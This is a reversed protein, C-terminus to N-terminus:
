PNATQFTTSASLILARAVQAVRTQYYNIEFEYTKKMAIARLEVQTRNNGATDGDIVIPTNMLGFNETDRMYQFFLDLFDIGENNQLGFVTVRVKEMALQYHDRNQDLRRIPQLARTDYIKVAAYPPVINPPVLDAPYLILSPNSFGDYYPSKYGNMQLWFPMSNSVVARTPDVTYSDLLQSAMAPQISHGFYHWVGVADYFGNQQSFAYRFDEHQAVYLTNGPSGSFYAVPEKTTLLVSALGLTEDENQLMEQSFHMSGNVRIKTTPLWFIYSDVPLVVRTYRQFEVEQDLDLTDLGDLMAGAMQSLENPERAM